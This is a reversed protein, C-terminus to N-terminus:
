RSLQLVKLEPHKTIMSKYDPYGYKYVKITKGVEPREFRYVRYIISALGRGSQPKVHKVNYGDMLKNM